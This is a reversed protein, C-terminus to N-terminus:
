GHNIIMCDEEKVVNKSEGRTWMVIKELFHAINENDTVQLNDDAQLRDAIELRDVFHSVVRM